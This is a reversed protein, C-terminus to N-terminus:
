IDESGPWLACTAARHRIATAHDMVRLNEMVGILTVCEASYLAIEARQHM